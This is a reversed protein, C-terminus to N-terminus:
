SSKNDVANGIGNIINNDYVLVHTNDFLCGQYVQM